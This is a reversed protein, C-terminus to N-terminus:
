TQDLNPTWGTQRRAEALAVAAAVAINLSRAGAALPIAVRADASEHVDDPVGASERGMLLIDDARFRFDWLLSDGRTTLLITRAPAAASQFDHWGDHARPPALAGYDM